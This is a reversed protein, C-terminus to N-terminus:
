GSLVNDFSVYGFEVFQFILEVKFVFSGEFVKLEHGISFGM